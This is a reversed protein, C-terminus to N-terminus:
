TRRRRAVVLGAAAAGVLLAGVATAVVVPAAPAASAGPAAAATELVTSPGPGAPAAVGSTGPGGMTSSTTTSTTTSSSTMSPTSTAPAAPPPTEYWTQLPTGSPATYSSVKGDFREERGTAVTFRTPVDSRLTVTSVGPVAPADSTIVRLYSTKSFPEDFRALVGAGRLETTHGSPDTVVVTLDAFTTRENEPPRDPVLVELTFREGDAHRVRFSAEDGPRALTGYTAFSVRGDELLPTQDAAVGETVFVPQHASAVGTAALMTLGLFLGLAGVVVGVQRGSRMVPM